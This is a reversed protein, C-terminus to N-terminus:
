VPPPRPAQDAPSPELPLSLRAALGQPSRKHLSLRGGCQRAFREVIALGLGTGQAGTRAANGRYFPRKATELEAESLGAGRDNVTIVIRDAARALEIEVPPAGHRHANELLNAIARRLGDAPLIAEGTAGRVAVPLGRQSFSEALERCLAAVDFRVPAVDAPPRAFEMFQRTLAEMDDMDQIMAARERPDAVQMESALRLRTLPTRLDHALGALM